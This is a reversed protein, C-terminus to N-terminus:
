IVATTLLLRGEVVNKEYEFIFNLHVDILYKWSLNLQRWSFLLMQTNGNLYEQQPARTRHGM